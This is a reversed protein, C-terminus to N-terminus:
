QTQRLVYGRYDRVGEPRTLEQDFDQFVNQIWNVLLRDRYQRNYATSDPRTEELKQILYVQRSITYPGKWVKLPLQAVVGFLEPRFGVGVIPQMLKFAPPNLLEPRYATLLAQVSDPSLTKLLKRASDAVQRAVDLKREITLDRRVRGKVKELPPIEEPFDQKLVVAVFRTELSVVPSRDGVRADKLWSLLISNRGVRPIFGLDRRFPGTRFIQFGRAKAVSDLDELRVNKILAELDDHIRTLTTASARVPVFIHAVWFTDRKRRELKLIHFGKDSRVPEPTFAGVKLTELVPWLGKYLVPMGKVLKGLKGGRDRTTMDESYYRAVDEFPQGDKLEELATRLKELAAATDQASPVKPAEVLLLDVREKQRYRERHKRYYAAVDEESVQVFSDPINEAVLRFMRVKYLTERLFFEQRAERDAMAIGTFLDARMLQAPIQERLYQEYNVFFGANQPNALAGLYKQYDFKGTSDLFTSDQLLEQPPIRKILEVYTPNSLTLHRQRALAQLRVNRVFQNWIEDQIRARDLPTLERNLARTSEQVAREFQQVFSTYPIQKGDVEGIVGQQWPEGGVNLRFIDAGLEFLIWAVFGAIVVWLFTKTRKRFKQMIMPM